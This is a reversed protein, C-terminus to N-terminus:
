RRNLRLLKHLAAKQQLIAEDEMSLVPPESCLGVAIYILRESPFMEMYFEIAAATKLQLPYIPYDLVKKYFEANERSIPYKIHQM